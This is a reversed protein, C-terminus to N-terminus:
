RSALPRRAKAGDRKLTPNSPPNALAVHRDALRIVAAIKRLTLTSPITQPNVLVDYFTGYRLWHNSYLSNLTELEATLAQSIPHVGFESLASVVLKKLNHGLPKKLQGCYHDYNNFLLLAKLTIEVGQCILHLVVYEYGERQRLLLAAGLFSKGKAYMSQAVMQKGHVTLRGSEAKMSLMVM